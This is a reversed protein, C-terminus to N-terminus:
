IYQSALSGNRISRSQHMHCRSEPHQWAFVLYKICENARESKFQLRSKIMEKRRLLEDTFLPPLCVLGDRRLVVGVVGSSSYRHPTIGASNTVRSIGAIPSQHSGQQKSAGTPTVHPHPSPHPKWCHASTDMKVQSPILDQLKSTPYNSPESKQRTPLRSISRATSPTALPTAEPLRPVASLAKHHASNPTDEPIVLGSDETRSTSITAHASVVGGDPTHSLSASDM